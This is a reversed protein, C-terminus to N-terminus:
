KMCIYVGFKNEDAAEGHIDSYCEIKSFGSEKLIDLIEGHTFAKQKERYEIIEKKKPDIFICNEIRFGDEMYKESLIYKGNQEGWDRIREQNLQGDMMPGAIKLLFKGEVKLAKHINNFHQNLEEEKMLGLTHNYALIFDYAEKDRIHLGRQFRFDVDLDNYLAKKRAEDIYLSAIDIGTVKHGRKAFELSHRGTGCGVDLIKLDGEFKLLHHLKDVEEATEKKGPFGVWDAFAKQAEENEWMWNIVKRDM